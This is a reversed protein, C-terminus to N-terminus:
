KKPTEDFYQVVVGILKNYLQILEFKNENNLNQIYELQEKSLPKYDLIDRKIIAFYDIDNNEFRQSKEIRIPRFYMSSVIEKSNDLGSTAPPTWDINKQEEVIMGMLKALAPDLNKCRITDDDDYESEYESESESESEEYFRNM